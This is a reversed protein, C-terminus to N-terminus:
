MAGSQNYNNVLLGFDAIDVVGDGTFDARFDYGNGPISRDGNYANVLLGFDGIDVLNSNDADGGLLTGKVGSISGGSVNMAVASALTKDGKIRVAYNNAPLGDFHFVGNPLVYQTKTITAGSSVPRFQFTLNQAAATAALGDLALVGSVSSGGVSTNLLVGAANDGNLATVIDPRGDGNVDMVAASQVGTGALVVLNVYFTGQGNNPLVSVSNGGVYNTGDYIGYNATVVDLLGDGNVDALVVLQPNTGVAYNARGGFTGNGMGMLVSVSGGGTGYNATVIDPRGDGNVDAVAVSAPPGDVAYDARMGFLGSGNNLFVSVSNAGHNAIVVDPRGDGNVDALAISRPSAGVDYNTYPGLNGGGTNLLVTMSYGLLNVTVVDLLGDGNVDALALAFPGYGVQVDKKPGFTGDGRGLLVSVSNANYNAAIIDPWGDNNIDAVAASHPGSGAAYDMPAGFSGSGTGLLISVTNASFNATVLDPLGDGNVDSAAVCAPGVGTTYAVPPGIHLSSTGSSSNSSRFLLNTPTSATTGVTGLFAGTKASYSLITHTDESVVYFVGNNGFTIGATSRLGGSGNAVFTDIFDGTVGNFRLVSGIGNNFGNGVYLNGDPGFTLTRPANLGNGSAFVGLPAGTIGNYRLVANGFQDVVFLTGDQRFVLSTPLKLGGSGQAIFTDIFAGTIGNYRLITGYGQSTENVVYLNGDPGYAMDTATTLGGSGATVFNGLSAGTKGDLKLVTNLTAVFLNGDMTNIIAYPNTFGSAFTSRAGNANLDFQAVLGSGFDSVLLPPAAAPGQFIVTAPASVYTGDSATYTFSDVGAYTPNQTYTAPTGNM